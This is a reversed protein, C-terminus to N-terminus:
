QTLTIDDRNTLFQTAGRQVWAQLYVTFGTLTPDNPLLVETVQLGGAPVTGVFFFVLTNLDLLLPGVFGPIPLNGTGASLMWTYTDGPEGSVHFRVPTDILAAGYLNIRPREDFTDLRLDDVGAENIGNNPVDKAVFKVQMQASHPLIDAVTFEHVAWANEIGSTTDIRTWNAGADDSLFVDFRDAQTGQCAYWRAYSLVASDVGSLDLLPTLLTTPGEDIDDDGASGGGNGTVFAITGAGPTADDEPNSPEGEYDTGVPDGREWFGTLAADGPAGVTWGVDSELDDAIFPRRTGVFLHRADVFTTGGHTVALEYDIRQGGVAGGDILLTLPAGANDAGGFSGVVGFDHSGDGVSAPGSTVSLAVTVATGSAARGSNRLGLVLEVTEGAEFAGDGDGVETRTETAVRMWTGAALATRQLALLNEDALPVIRETPPWFGDQDDGLEPTWSMTGYVTDEHDITTGNTAYLGFGNIVVYGNEECALCGVEEYDAFNAPYVDAHGYPSLWLNSHTHISLATQFDRAAMLADLNTTEPESLPSPGRYVESFTDPSSGVDDLGWNTAYNRNLDVGFTFDGNDRRNKRWLGGGAPDTAQNYVYGDPNVIPICYIEREDLLYTALPDSGHNELAWLMFWLVTQMGAPERAHHLADFRVEPENEDIDPNDSLRVMWQDRGEVTTGISIRASILSPYTARLQDLVSLVEDHTYYGGM